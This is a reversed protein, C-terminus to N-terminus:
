QNNELNYKWQYALIAKQEEALHNSLWQLFQLKENSEMTPQTVDVQAALNGSVSGIISAALHSLDSVIGLPIVLLNKLPNKMTAYFSAWIAEDVTGVPIPNDESSALRELEELNNQAQVLMQASSLGYSKVVKSHWAGSEDQYEVVLSPYERGNKKFILLRYRRRM